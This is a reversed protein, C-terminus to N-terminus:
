HLFAGDRSSFSADNHVALASYNLSRSLLVLWIDPDRTHHRIWDVERSVELWKVVM